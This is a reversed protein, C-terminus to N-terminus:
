PEGNLVKVLKAFIKVGAPTLDSADNKAYAYLMYIRANAARHYYIVRAGGSRGRGSAGVRLKRVGGSGAILAGAEPNECLRREIAAIDDNSFLTESQQAFARLQVFTPLYAPVNSM